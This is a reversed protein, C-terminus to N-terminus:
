VINTVELYHKDCVSWLSTAVQKKKFAILRSGRRIVKKLDLGFSHNVHAECSTNTWILKKQQVWKSRTYIEKKIKNNNQDEDILNHNLTLNPHKPRFLGVILFM